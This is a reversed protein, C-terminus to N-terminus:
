MALCAYYRTVDDQSSALLFLWDPVNKELMKQQTDHDSYMSLNSLAFAAHRYTTEDTSAKCANLVYDLASMAILRANTQPNQKFLGEFIRLSVRMAAPSTEAKAALVLPELLGRRYVLYDRNPCSFCGELALGAAERVDDNYLYLDVITDFYNMERFCFGFDIKWGRGLAENWLVYRVYDCLGYALDLGLNPLAWADTFVKAVVTLADVIISTNSQLIGVASGTAREMEHESISVITQFANDLIRQYKNLKAKLAHKPIVHETQVHKLSAFPPSATAAAVDAVAGASGFSSPSATHGSSPTSVSVPKTPWQPTQQRGGRSGSGSFKRNSPIRAPSASPTFYNRYAQSVIQSPPAVVTNAATYSASKNLNRWNPAGPVISSSQTSQGSATFAAKKESGNCIWSFPLAPSPVDSPLRVTVYPPISDIFSAAAFARDNVVGYAPLIQTLNYLSDMSDASVGTSLSDTSDVISEDGIRDRHKGLSRLASKGNGQVMAAAVPPKENTPTVPNELTTPEVRFRVRNSNNSSPAMAMDTPRSRQQQSEEIADAKPGPNMGTDDVAMKAEEEEEELQHEPDDPIRGTSSTSSSNESKAVKREEVVLKNVAETPSPSSSM